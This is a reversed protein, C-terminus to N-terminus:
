STNRRGTSDALYVSVVVPIVLGTVLVLWNQFNQIMESRAIELM